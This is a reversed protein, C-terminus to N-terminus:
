LLLALAVGKSAKKCELKLVEAGSKASAGKAALTEMDRDACEQAINVARGLACQVPMLVKRDDKRMEGFAKPMTDTWHPRSINSELESMLVVIHPCLTM